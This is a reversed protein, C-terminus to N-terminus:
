APFLKEMEGGTITDATLVASMMSPYIGGGLASKAGTLYLGRVSTKPGPRRPIAQKGVPANDYWCGDIAMTYREYTIPTAIDYAEVNSILDPFVRAVADVVIEAYKEKISRYKEGRIGGQEIGWRRMFNYPVGPVIIDMCTKGDPALSPDVTSPAMMSWRLKEPDPYSGKADVAEIMEDESYSPQAFVPGGEFEADLKKALGLHVVLGTMSVPAEDVKELFSTTFNERDLLKIFTRKSDADSVVTRATVKARPVMEVENVGDKDTNISTVEHGLLLTGGSETFAKALSDTLVQFGGVPVYAGKDFSKLMSVMSLASLEWPPAGLFGWPTSIVTKLRDDTIHKDLMKSFTTGSLMYSMMQPRTFPYALMRMITSFGLPRRTMRMDMGKVLSDIAKFFSNVNSTQHQFQEKLVEAYQDLASPVVFDHEPYVFRMFPEVQKFEMRIGLHDIIRTIDGGPGCGGMLHPVQFDYGKRVYSTVFGGPRSHREAILVNAGQRALLAGCTLGGVGAGVIVVDFQEGFEPATAAPADGEAM